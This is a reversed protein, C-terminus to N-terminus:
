PKNNPKKKKNLHGTSIDDNNDLSRKKNDCNRSSSDENTKANDGFFIDGATNLQRKQVQSGSSVM